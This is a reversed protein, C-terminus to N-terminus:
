LMMILVHLYFKDAVTFALVGVVVAMGALVVLSRRPIFRYASFRSGESRTTASM